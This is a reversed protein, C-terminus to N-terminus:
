PALPDRRLQQLLGVFDDNRWWEAVKGDALRYIDTGGWRVSGGTAPIGAFETRHTGTATWRAAVKDNTAIVDDLTVRLDPFVHHFRRFAERLEDIGKTDPAAGPTGPHVRVDPDVFDPLLDPRNSNVCEEVLRRVIQENDEM